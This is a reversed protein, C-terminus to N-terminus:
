HATARSLAQELQAAIAAAGRGRVLVTKSRAHRGCTIAIASRPVGLLSSLFEVLAANARGEVPPAQLAIRLAASSGEGIIGLISTRSARPTVRVLFRAGEPSDRVPLTM